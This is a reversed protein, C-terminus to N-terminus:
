GNAAERDRDRRAKTRNLAQRVLDASITLSRHLDALTERRRREDVRLAQLARQRAGGIHLGTAPKSCLCRARMDVKGGVGAASSHTMTSQPVLASRPANSLACPSTICSREKACPM